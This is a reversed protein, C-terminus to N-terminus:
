ASKIKPTRVPHQHASGARITLHYTTKYPKSASSVKSGMGDSEHQITPCTHQWSAPLRLRPQKSWTLITHNPLKFPFTVCGNVGSAAIMQYNDQSLGDVNEGPAYVMNHGPSIQSIAIREGKTNVAGVNILPMDKDKEFIQPRTDINKRGSQQAYNGAALVIPVGMNLLKKM